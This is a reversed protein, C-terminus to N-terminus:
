CDEGLAEQMALAAALGAGFRLFAGFVKRMQRVARSHRRKLREYARRRAAPSLQPWTRDVLTRLREGRVLTRIVLELSDADLRGRLHVVLFLELRRGESPVSPAPPSQVLDAWRRGGPHGLREGEVLVLREPDVPELLSRERWERQLWSFAKNRTAWRLHALARRDREQLPLEAVAELFAAVLMQDLDRSDPTSGALRGLLRCLMPHFAVLLVTAWFPHPRTQQEAVLARTLAEQEAQRGASPDRLAELVSQVTEHEALAPHRRRAADFRREDRETLRERQLAPKLDHLGRAGQRCRWQQTSPSPTSPFGPM